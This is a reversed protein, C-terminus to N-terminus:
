SFLSNIQIFIGECYEMIIILEGDEVFTEEYDVIHPHKLQKLLDSQVYLLFDNYFDINPIFIFLVELEAQKQEKEEM